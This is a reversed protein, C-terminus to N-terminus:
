LGFGIGARLQYNNLNDVNTNNPRPVIHYIGSLNMRTKPGMPFTVGGAFNIGLESSSDEITFPSPPGPSDDTYEYRWSVNYVGAGGQVFFAPQVMSGFHLRLAPNVRVVKASFTETVSTGSVDYQARAEGMDDWSAEAGWSVTPSMARWFGGGFGVGGGFSEGTTGLETSSKTFGLSLEFTGNASGSASSHASAQSAICGVCLATLISALHIRKMHM